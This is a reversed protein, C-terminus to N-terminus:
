PCRTTLSWPSVPPSLILGTATEKQLAHLAAPKLDVVEVIEIGIHQVAIADGNDPEVAHQLLGAMAAIRGDIIL